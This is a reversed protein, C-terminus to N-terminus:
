GASDRESKGEEDDRREWRTATRASIPRITERRETFMVVLLRSREPLDLLVDRDEDDSHRPPFGTSPV